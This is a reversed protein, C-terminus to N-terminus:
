AEITRCRLRAHPPKMFRYPTWHQRGGRLSLEGVLPLYRAGAFIAANESPRNEIREAVAVLVIVPQNLEGFKDPVHLLHHRTNRLAERAGHGPRLWHKTDLRR